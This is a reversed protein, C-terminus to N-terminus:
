KCGKVQLGHIRADCGDNHCGKINIQVLRYDTSFGRALVFKGTTERPVSVRKVEKLHNETQGVSITFSKPMYSDDSSKVNVSLEKVMVGPLMHIRPPPPVSHSSFPPLTLLTLLSLSPPSSPLLPFSSLSFLPPLYHPSCCVCHPQM